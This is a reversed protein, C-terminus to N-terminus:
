KKLFGTRDFHPGFLGEVVIAVFTLSVGAVLAVTNLPLLLHAAYLAGALIAFKMALAMGLLAQKQPSTSRLIAEVLWRLAMLNGLELGGGVFVGLTNAGDAGFLAMALSTGLWLLLNLGEIRRMKSM